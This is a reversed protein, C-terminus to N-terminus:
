YMVSKRRPGEFSTKANGKLREMRGRHGEHGGLGPSRGGPQAAHRLETDIGAPQGGGPIRARSLPPPRDGEVRRPGASPGRRGTRDNRGYTGARATSESRYSKVVTGVQDRASGFGGNSRSKAPGREGIYQERKPGVGPGGQVEGGRRGNARTKIFGPMGAMTSGRQLAFSRTAPERVQASKRGGQVNKVGPPNSSNDGKTFRASSM